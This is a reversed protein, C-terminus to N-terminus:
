FFNIKPRVKVWKELTQPLVFQELFDPETMFSKVQTELVMGFNLFFQHDLELFIGPSFSHYASGKQLVWWAVAAPRTFMTFSLRALYLAKNSCFGYMVLSLLARCGEKSIFWEQSYVLPTPPPPLPPLPYVIDIICHLTPRTYLTSYKLIRSSIKRTYTKDPYM